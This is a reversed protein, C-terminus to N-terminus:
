RPQHAPHLEPCLHCRDKGPALCGDQAVPRCQIDPRIRGGPDCGLVASGCGASWRGTRGFEQHAAAPVADSRSTTGAAGTAGDAGHIDPWLPHADDRAHNAPGSARLRRLRPGARLRRTAASIRASWVASVGPPSSLRSSGPVPAAPSLAPSPLEACLGPTAGSAPGTSLRTPRVVAAAAAVPQPLERLGPCGAPELYRRLVSVPTIPLGAYNRRPAVGHLEARVTFREAGTLDPAPGPGRRQSGRLGFLLQQFGRAGRYGAEGYRA